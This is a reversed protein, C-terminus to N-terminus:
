FVELDGLSLDWEAASLPDASRAALPRVAFTIARWPFPLFGMRAIASLEATGRAFHAVLYDATTSALTAKVVARGLDVDPRELFLEVLSVGALGASISPRLVALGQLRGAREFPFVGYRTYPEEGPRPSPIAELRGYRWVLYPWTRPTRYPRKRRAAESREVLSQLRDPEAAAFASWPQVAPGFCRTWPIGGRTPRGPLRLRRRWYPVPRLIRFYRPWRTLTRWGLRRYGALSVPNPTNFVLDAGEATLRGLATQTLTSFVGQRRHAPHTATDVARAARVSGDAFAWRMLIRLGIVDPGPSSRVYFGLSPGFPNEVHKWRWFENTRRAVPREGLTLRLLQLFPEPDDTPKWAEICLASADAMAKDRRLIAQRGQDAIRV